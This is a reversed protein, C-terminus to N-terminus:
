ARKMWTAALAFSLLAGSWWLCTSLVLEPPIGSHYDAFFPPQFPFITTSIMVTWPRQRGVTETVFLCAVMVVPLSAALALPGIWAAATSRLRVAIGACSFALTLWFGGIWALVVPLRVLPTGELFFPGWVSDQEYWPDDGGWLLDLFPEPLAIIIVILGLAGLPAVRVATAFVKGLLIFAPPYTSAVLLPLTRRQREDVISSTLMLVTLSVVLVAALAGWAGVLEEGASSVAVALAGLLWAVTVIGLVRSLGGHAATFLERWLVPNGFLPVWRRRRPLALRPILWVSARLYLIAGSFWTLMAAGILAYVVLQPGATAVGYPSPDPYGLLNASLAIGEFLGTGLVVVGLHVLWGRRPGPWATAHPDWGTAVARRFRWTAVVAAVGALALWPVTGWPIWWDPDYATAIPAMALFHLDDHGIALYIAYAMRLPVILGFGLAFLGTAVMPVALSRSVLATLGAVAGLVIAMAPLLLIASAVEGPAVGGFTPILSLLPLTGAIILFLSLLGASVTGWLSQGPSLGTLALLDLTGEDRELQVARALTVPVIFAVLLFLGATSARYMNRGIDPVHDIEIREDVFSLVLTLLVGIVLVPAVRLVALQWRRSQRRLERRVILARPKV